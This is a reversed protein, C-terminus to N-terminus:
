LQQVHCLLLVIWEQQFVLQVKCLHILPFLMATIFAFKFSINFPIATSCITPEVSIANEFSTKSERSASSFATKTAILPVVTSAYKNIGFTISAPQLHITESFTTSTG